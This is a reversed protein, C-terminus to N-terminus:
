PLYQGHGWAEPPGEGLRHSGFKFCTAGNEKRFESICLNRQVGLVLEDVQHTPIRNGDTKSAIGWLYPYDSHWGQVDRVGDDKPLIAFSPSHALNIDQMGMYQRILWLSVPEAAAKAVAATETLPPNIPAYIENEWRGTCTARELAEVTDPSLICPLAVWGNQKFTELYTSPLDAPGHEPSFTAGENAASGDDALLNGNHHLYYGDNADARKAEVILGTVVHKYANGGDVIDWIVTNDAQDFTDLTQGSVGLFKGDTARILTYYSAPREVRTIREEFQAENLM